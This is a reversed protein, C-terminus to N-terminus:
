RNKYKLVYYLACLCGPLFTVFSVLFEEDYAPAMKGLICFANYSIGHRIKKSLKKVLSIRQKHYVAFGKPNKCLLKKFGNSLGDEQYECIQIVTNLPRLFYGDMDLRDYLINEGIFTEGQFEPFLYDKLVETKFIFCFEGTINDINNFDYLSKSSMDIFKQSLMKGNFARKYAILGCENKQLFQINDFINNIAGDELIDDSDLCMFYDGYANLVAVNHATHKGGNEKKIYRITLLDEKIFDNVVSETNDSSGDDVILWEFEINKQQKLSEHVKSLLNARNYCPTFITLIM